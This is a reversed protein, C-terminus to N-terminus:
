IKLPASTKLLSKVCFLVLSPSILSSSLEFLERDADDRDVVGQEEDEDDDSDIVSENNDGTLELEFM